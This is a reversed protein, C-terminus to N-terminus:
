LLLFVKHPGFYSESDRSPPVYLVMWCNARLWLGNFWEADPKWMLWPRRFGSLIIVSSVIQWVLYTCWYVKMDICL